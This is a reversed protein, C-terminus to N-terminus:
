PTAEDEIENLGYTVRSTKTRAGNCGYEMAVYWVSM